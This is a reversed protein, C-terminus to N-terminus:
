EGPCPAFECNPGVRGVGSGDPCIKADMTCFVESVLPPAQTEFAKEFGHDFGVYYGAGAAIILLFVGLVFESLNINLKPM